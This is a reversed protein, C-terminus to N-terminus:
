YTTSTRRAIDTVDVRRTSTYVDFLIRYAGVRRRFGASGKLKVLDGSFPDNEMEILAAAIREQDKRPFRQLRRAASSEVVVDWKM